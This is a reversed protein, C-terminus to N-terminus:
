ADEPNYRKVEKRNTPEPERNIEEKYEGTKEDRTIQARTFM